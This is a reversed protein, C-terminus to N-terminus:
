WKGFPVDFNMQEYNKQKPEEPKQKFQLFYEDSVFLKREM